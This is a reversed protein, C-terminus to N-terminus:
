ENQYSYKHGHVPFDRRLPHGDWSEPLMIRRLDPHNRFTIGFLDFVEREYWDASEYVQTASEIEANGGGLRCKLRLRQNAPISHLHYVVEFRPETPHWDVATVSSLRNFQHSSKLFGLVSIIRAPDIELTLEGHASTGGTIASADFALIAAALPQGNLTDPLM